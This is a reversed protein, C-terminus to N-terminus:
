KGIKREKKVAAGTGEKSMKKHRKLSRGESTLEEAHEEKEKQINVRREKM